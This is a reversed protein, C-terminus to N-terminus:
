FFASFSLYETAKKTCQIHLYNHNRLVHKGPQAHDKFSRSARSTANQIAGCRKLYFHRDQSSCADADSSCDPCKNNRFYAMTVALCNCFM